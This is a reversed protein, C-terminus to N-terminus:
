APELLLMGDDKALFPGSALADPFKDGTAIGTHTFTLGANNKAWNAVNPNTVYRDTGSLNAQAPSGPRCPPM